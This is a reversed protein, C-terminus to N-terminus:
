TPIRCHRTFARGEVEVRITRTSASAVSKLHCRSRFQLCYIWNVVRRVENPLLIKIEEAAFRICVTEGEPGILNSGAAAISLANFDFANVHRCRKEERYFKLLATIENIAESLR